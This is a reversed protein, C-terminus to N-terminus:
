HAWYRREHRALASEEDAGLSHNTRRLGERGLHAQANQPSSAIRHVRSHCHGRRQIHNLNTMAGSSTCVSDVVSM